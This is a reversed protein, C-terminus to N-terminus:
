ARSADGTRRNHEERAASLEAQRKEEAAHQDLGASPLPRHRPQYPSLERNSGGGDSKGIKRGGRQEEEGGGESESDEHNERDFREQDTEEPPQEQPPSQNVEQEKSPQSPDVEPREDPNDPNTGQTESMKAEQKKHAASKRKAAPLRIV